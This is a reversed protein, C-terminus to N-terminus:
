PDSVSYAAVMAKCLCALVPVSVDGVYRTPPLFILETNLLFPRSGFASSVDATREVKWYRLGIEIIFM